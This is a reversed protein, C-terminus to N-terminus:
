REKYELNEMWESPDTDPLLEVIYLDLSLKLTGDVVESNLSTIPIYVEGVVIGDLLSSELIAQMESFDAKYQFMNAAFFYVRATLTKDISNSNLKTTKASEIAVKISPRIVTDSDYELQLPVNELATGQLAARIKDSIAVDIELLTLM